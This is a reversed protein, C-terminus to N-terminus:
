ATAEPIPGDPTKGSDMSAISKMSERVCEMARKLHEQHGTDAIAEYFEGERDRIEELLSLDRREGVKGLARSSIKLLQLLSPLVRESEHFHYVGSKTDGYVGAASRILVRATNGGILSLFIYVERELSLIERLSMTESEHHSRVLLENLKRHITRFKKFFREQNGDIVKCVGAILKADLGKTHGMVEEPTIEVDKGPEKNYNSILLTTLVLASRDSVAVSDPSKSFDSLLVKLVNQPQKLHPVLTQLSSFLAIRDERRAMQKLYHWLFEFIKKRYKAFQSVKRAFAERLFTGQDDFCNQFTEILKKAESTSIDFDKAIVKFDNEDFSIGREALNQMKKKIASRAKFFSVMGKLTSHIRGITTETKGDKAKIVGGDVEINEYTDDSVQDLRKEVNDLVEEMVPKSADTEEISTLLNSALQLREGLNQSDVKEFDDGYVSGMVLATEQPSSGYKGIVLRAVETKRKSVTEYENDVMLWKINNVEIPPPTLKERLKKNGLIANYASSFQEEGSEQDSKQMWADVKQVLAKMAEPKVRNVKALLTLNLDPQDAEDHILALPAKVGAKGSATSLAQGWRSLIVLAIWIAKTTAPSGDPIQVYFSNIGHKAFAQFGNTLRTQFDTSFDELNKVMATATAMDFIMNGFLVVYDTKESAETGTKLGRYRILVKGDHGPVGDLERLVGLVDNLFEKGAKVDQLLQVDELCRGLLHVLEGLHGRWANLKKEEESLAKGLSTEKGFDVGGIQRFLLEASEDLTFEVEKSPQEDKAEKEEMM